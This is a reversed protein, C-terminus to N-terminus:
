YLDAEAKSYVLKPTVKSGPRVKQFGELIIAEGNQLGSSIIWKNGYDRKEQIFKKELIDDKGIALVYLKGSPDRLAAKQPILMVQEQPLSIKATAYMGPMLTGDKNEFRARLTVSDTSPSVLVEGFEL